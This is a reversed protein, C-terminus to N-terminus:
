GINDLGVLPRVWPNLKTLAVPLQKTQSQAYSFSDYEGLTLVYWIGKSNSFQRVKAEALLPSSKKFRLVDSERHSAALQITYVKTKTHQSVTKDALEKDNLTGVEVIKSELTPKDASGLSSDRWDNQPKIKPIVLVKDLIAVTNIFDENEEAFLDEDLYQKKPSAYHVSQHTSSDLWSPITSKLPKSEALDVRNRKFISGLNSQVSATITKTSLPSLLTNDFAVYTVAVVVVASIALSVKKLALTKNRKIQRSCKFIYSELSSNIKTLNGKTLQYFQKFQEETLPKNLLRANMGRQLVYTRTENENLAGLEITHILNNFQEAALQNLTAVVSYDSVLCVHFFAFDEQKKIALMMEKILSESLLQANDLVLLVHAKRENVQDVLTEFSTTEDHNLHLQTAIHLILHERNCPPTLTLSISKVQQDLNNRLLTSFCTKGGEKESLVAILVNNFLILHNIFDIKALWTTPKFLIRPQVAAEIDLKMKGDNM